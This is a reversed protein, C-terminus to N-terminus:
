NLDFHRGTVGQTGPFDPILSDEGLGKRGKGARSAEDQLAATGSRPLHGGKVAGALKRELARVNGHVTCLLRAMLM